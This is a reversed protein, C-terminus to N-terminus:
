YEVIYIDRCLGSVKPHMICCRFFNNLVHLLAFCCLFSFLSPLLCVKKSCLCLKLNAANISLLKSVFHMTEEISKSSGYLRINASVIYIADLFIVESLFPGTYCFKTVRSAFFKIEANGRVYKGFDMSIVEVLPVYLTVSKLGLWTFAGDLEFKRLVPFTLTLDKPENLFFHMSTRSLKLSTLSSLSIFDPVKILWNKLVLEELSQCQFLPDGPFVRDQILSEFCVKQVRKNLVFSTWESIHSNDYTYHVSLSFSDITSSNLHHFLIRNVFQIFQTKKINTHCLPHRDQFSLETIFKWLNKWRTSLVCTRVADVVTLFSLIFGIIHDPLDSIRDQGSSSRRRRQSSENEHRASANVIDLEM